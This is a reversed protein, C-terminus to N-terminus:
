ISKGGEGIRNEIKHDPRIANFAMKEAIITGANYGLGGLLDFGRIIMDCLEVARMDHQPLKDDKLNKRHGEMGEAAECVCLMLKSSVWLAFFKKPWTRVDEGTETDIWWTAAAAHCEKALLNGADAIEKFLEAMAENGAANAAVELDRLDNKLQENM